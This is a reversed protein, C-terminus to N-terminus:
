HIRPTGTASAIAALLVQEDVPKLLYAAAGSAIVRARSEPSDHGTIVIVPVACGLEGLQLLVEFGSLRPMHLDLVICDIPHAQVVALLDNGCSFTEVGMDLSRLLRAIAKRVSDEDDVIAIQPRMPDM